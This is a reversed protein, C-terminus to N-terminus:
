SIDVTGFFTFSTGNGRYITVNLIFFTTTGEQRYSGTATAGTGFQQTGNNFVTVSTVSSSSGYLDYIIASNLPDPVGGVFQLLPKPKVLPLNIKNITVEVGSSCTSKKSANASQNGCFAITTALVFTLIISKKM